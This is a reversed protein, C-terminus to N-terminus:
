NKETYLFSGCIGFFAVMHGRTAMEEMALLFDEKSVGMQEAAKCVEKPEGCDFGYETSYLEFEEHKPLYRLKYAM